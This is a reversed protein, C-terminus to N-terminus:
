NAVRSKIHVPASLRPAALDRDFWLSSAVRSRSADPICQESSKLCLVSSHRCFFTRLSRSARSSRDIQVEALRTTHTIHMFSRSAGVSQLGAAHVRCPQQPQPEFDKILRQALEAVRLQSSFQHPQPVFFLVPLGVFSVLSSVDPSGAPETTRERVARRPSCDFQLRSSCPSNDVDSVRVWVWSRM